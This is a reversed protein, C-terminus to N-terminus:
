RESGNHKPQAAKTPLDHVLLSMKRETGKLDSWSAINPAITCVRYRRYHFPVDFNQKTVRFVRSAQCCAHANWAHVSFSLLKPTAKTNDTRSNM